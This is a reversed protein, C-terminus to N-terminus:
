TFVPLGVAGDGMPSGCRLKAGLWPGRLGAGLVIGSYLATLSFVLTM